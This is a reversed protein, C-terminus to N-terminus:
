GVSQHLYRRPRSRPAARILARGLVEQGDGDRDTTPTTPTTPPHTPLYTPRRDVVVVWVCVCMCRMVYIRVAAKEQKDQALKDRLTREKANARLDDLLKEETALDVKHTSLWFFFPPTTNTYTHVDHSADSVKCAGGWVVRICGGM